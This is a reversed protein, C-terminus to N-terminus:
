RWKSSLRHSRGSSNQELRPGPLFSSILKRMQELSLESLFDKKLMGGDPLTAPKPGTQAKVDISGAVFEGVISFLKDMEAKQWELARSGYFLDSLGTKLENPKIVFAWGAGYPDRNLLSPFQQLKWNVEIVLGSIPIILPTEGAKHTVSWRHKGKEVKLGEHPLAVAYARGLIKQAFDDLGVRVNGRDEVRLWVHGSHYFVTADGPAEATKPPTKSDGTQLILDFPCHECDYDHDCLKYDVVGALMWWCPQNEILQNKPTDLM